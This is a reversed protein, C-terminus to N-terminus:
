SLKYRFLLKLKKNKVIIILSVKIKIINNLIGNNDECTMLEQDVTWNGDVIFKFYYIGPVIKLFVHKNKIAIDTEWNDWSGKLTM